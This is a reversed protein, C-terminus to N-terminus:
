DTDHSPQKLTDQRLGNNTFKNFSAMTIVGGWTPGLSYFVQVAAELWVQIHAYRTVRACRTKVLCLHCSRWDVCLNITYLPPRDSYLSESGSIKSELIIVVFFSRDKIIM